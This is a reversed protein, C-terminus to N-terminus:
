YFWGTVNFLGAAFSAAGAASSAAFTGQMGLSTMTAFASGAAVNGIGAQVGAAISGAAIGATGFGALIPLSSVALVAGGGYFLINGVTEGFSGKCEKTDQKSPPEPMKVERALADQPEPMKVQRVLADQPEPMKVERALAHEPEPDRFMQRGLSENQDQKAVNMNSNFIYLTLGLTIFVNFILVFIL